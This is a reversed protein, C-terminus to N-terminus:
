RAHDPTTASSVPEAFWLSRHTWEGPGVRTGSCVVIAVQPPGDEDYYDPFGIEARVKATSTVEFCAVRDENGLIIRGGLELHAILKNGQAAGNDWTHTNLLVNGRADGPRIGGADWAFSDNDSFPATGTVGREDRPVALVTAHDIGADPVSIWTPTFPGDPLQACPGAAQLVSGAQTQQAAPEATDPRARGEEDRDLFWVTAAALAVLLVVIAAVRGRTGGVISM